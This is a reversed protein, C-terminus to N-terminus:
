VHGFFMRYSNTPISENILRSTLESSCDAEDKSVRVPFKELDTVRHVGRWVNNLGVLVLRAAM